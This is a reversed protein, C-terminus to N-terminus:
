PRRTCVTSKLDDVCLRHETYFLFRTTTPVRYLRKVYVAAICGYNVKRLTCQGKKSSTCNNYSLLVLVGYRSQTVYRTFFTYTLLQVVLTTKVCICLTTPNSRKWIIYMCHQPHKYCVRPPHVKGSLYQCM